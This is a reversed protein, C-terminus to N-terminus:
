QFPAGRRLEIGSIYETAPGRGDSITHGDADQKFLVAFGDDETDDAFACRRTVDEGKHFVHLHIGQRCLMLHRHPTVPGFRETPSSTVPVAAVAALGVVRALMERRNM